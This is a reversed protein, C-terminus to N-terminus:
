GPDLFREEEEKMEKEDNSADHEVDEVADNIPEHHGPDNM